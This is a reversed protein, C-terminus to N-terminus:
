AWVGPWSVAVERGKDGLVQKGKGENSPLGSCWSCPQGEAEQNILMGEAECLGGAPCVNGGVWRRGRHRRSDVPFLSDLFLALALSHVM